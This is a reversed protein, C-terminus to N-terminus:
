ANVAVASILGDARMYRREIGALCIGDRVRLLFEIPGSCFAMAPTFAPMYPFITRLEPGVNDGHGQSIFISFQLAKRPHHAVEAVPVIPILLQAATARA